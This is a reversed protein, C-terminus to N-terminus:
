GGNSGACSARLKLGENVASLIGLALITRGMIGAGHFFLVGFAILAGATTWTILTDPFSSGSTQVGNMDEGPRVRVFRSARLRLVIAHSVGFSNGQGSIDARSAAVVVRYRLEDLGLDPMQKPLHRADPMRLIPVGTRLM